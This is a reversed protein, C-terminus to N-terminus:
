LAEGCRPCFVDGPSSPHSCAAASAPAPPLLPEAPPAPADAMPESAPRLVVKAGGPASSVFAVFRRPEDELTSFDVPLGADGAEHARRELWAIVYPLVEIPIRRTIPPVTECFFRAFGSYIDVGIEIDLCGRQLSETLIARALREFPDPPSAEPEPPEDSPPEPAEGAVREWHNLCDDLVPETVVFLEVNSGTSAVLGTELVPNDPDSVAVLLTSGIRGFPLARLRRRASSPLTTVIDKDASLLADRTIGAKGTARSLAATLTDESVAGTTLLAREISGGHSKQWESARRLRNITIDGSDALIEGVAPM